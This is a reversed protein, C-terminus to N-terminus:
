ARMEKAEDNVEPCTSSECKRRDESGIKSYVTIVWRKGVTEVGEAKNSRHYDVYHDQNEPTCKTNYGEGWGEAIKCVGDGGWVGRFCPCKISVKDVTIGKPIEVDSM